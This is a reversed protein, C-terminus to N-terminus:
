SAALTPTPVLDLLATRPRNADMLYALPACGESPLPTVVSTRGDTPRSPRLSAVIDVAKDPTTITAAQGRLALLALVLDALPRDDPTAACVALATGSTPFRRALQASRESILRLVEAERPLTRDHHRLEILGVLAPALVGSLEDAPRLEICARQLAELVRGDHRQELAQVVGDRASAAAPSAAAPLARTLRLDHQQQPRSTDKPFVPLGDIIIQSIPKGSKVLAAVRKLEDIEIASFARYGNHQRRPSPWGYREEWVRIVSPTLGCIQAADHISYQATHSLRDM